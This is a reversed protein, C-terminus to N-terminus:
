GSATAERVARNMRAEGDDLWMALFELADKRRKEHNIELGTVGKKAGAEMRKELARCRSLLGDITDATAKISGADHYGLAM